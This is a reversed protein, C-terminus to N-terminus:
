YEMKRLSPAKFWTAMVVLLTMCGGFVTARVTGMVKAALGSEFQGLENSSNIFMSSVSLVRGKLEEPTKLQVITGRVVVSVGDLMGSILLAFFSLIFLKSLGFVIICIGFGFVSYLLIRGQNRKMPFFTMFLIISISGIDAAANLWGFGVPGVKLIDSAYIPILAVAGGFLVAFMDLSLAGLVEKSKFVFRLGEKVSGWTRQNEKPTYLIPKKKLRSMFVIAILMFGAIVSFVVTYSFHAILFGSSAHGVVSASLYTGQSITVANGLRERPVIQSIMSSMAPGVFARLIGTCFIIGYVAYEVFHSTNAREMIWPATICLLALECLVYTSMTKLVLSRKESKDIVHGAYLALSLAPIVEALGVIGLALPNKTVQYIMWGIVTATMRIAMVFCFRGLVFSRFEPISMTELAANRKPSPLEDSM